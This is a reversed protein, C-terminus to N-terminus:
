RRKLKVGFCNQLIQTRHLFTHSVDSKCTIFVFTSIDYFERATLRCSQSHASRICKLMEDNATQTRWQARIWYVIFSVTFFTRALADHERTSDSLDSISSYFVRGTSGTSNRYSEAIVFNIRLSNASTAAQFPYVDFWPIFFFMKTKTWKSENWPYLHCYVVTYLTDHQPCSALQWRVVLWQAVNSCILENRGHTWLRERKSQFFVHSRKVSSNIHEIFRSRPFFNSLFTYEM